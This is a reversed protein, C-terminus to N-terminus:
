ISDMLEIHPAAAMFASAQRGFNQYHETKSHAKLAQEDAYQELVIYTQKDERSQHLAYLLCGDESAKVTEALQKFATEFEQNKGSVVQLRAILGIAM